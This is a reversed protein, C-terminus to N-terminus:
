YGAPITTPGGVINIWCDRFMVYGYMLGHCEGVVDVVTGETIMDLAGYYKPKFKLDGVMLFDEFNTNTQRSVKEVILGKFSIRKGKYLTDAAAADSKYASELDDFSVAYPAAEIAIPPPPKFDEQCAASFVTMFALSASVMLILGRKKMKM